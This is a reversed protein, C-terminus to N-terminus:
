KRLENELDKSTGFVDTRRPRPCTKVHTSQFITFICLEITKAM